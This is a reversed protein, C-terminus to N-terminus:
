GCFALGPFGAFGVVQWCFLWRDRRPSYLAPPRSSGWQAAQLQSGWLSPLVVGATREFGMPGSSTALGFSPSLRRPGGPERVPSKGDPGDRLARVGCAVQPSSDRPNTNDARGDVRVHRALRGSRSGEIKAANPNSAGSGAFAERAVIRRHAEYWGAPDVRASGAPISRTRQNQGREGIQDRSYSCKRSNAAHSPHPTKGLVASSAERDMRRGTRRFPVRHSHSRLGRTEPNSTCRSTVVRRPHACDPSEGV